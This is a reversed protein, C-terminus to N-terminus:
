GEYEFSASDSRIEFILQDKKYLYFVAPTSVTEVIKRKMEGKVPANLKHGRNEEITIGLTYKGQKLLIKNKNCELVKVGLYTAFRYEKGNYIFVCICGRFSFGMFPINAVSCMISFNDEPANAQIWIYSSPFSKGEDKEIYGIGGDFNIEKGNLMISGELKHAMSVIGHSCEMPLFKFPGMIDYKIPTLDGYQIKGCLSIEASDINLVVGKDSFCNNGILPINCSFDKTIVQIFEETASKGVILCLVNEDKQHKYYYGKFFSDSM